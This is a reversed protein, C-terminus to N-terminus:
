LIQSLFQGSFVVDGRPGLMDCATRIVRSVCSESGESFGDFKANQDRGLKQQRESELEKEVKSIAKECAISMGLLFYANCHLFHVHVDRGLETRIFDAFIRDFCKM